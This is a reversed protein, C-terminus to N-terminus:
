LEFLTLITQDYHYSIMKRSTHSQECNTYLNEQNKQHPFNYFLINTQWLFFAMVSSNINKFNKLDCIAFM